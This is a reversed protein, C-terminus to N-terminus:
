NDFVFGRLSGVDHFGLSDVRGTSIRCESMWDRPQDDLRSFLVPANSKAGVMRLELLVEICEFGCNIGSFGISNAASQNILLPVLVIGIGFILAEFIGSSPHIAFMHTSVRFRHCGIDPEGMNLVGSAAIHHPLSSNFPQGDSFYLFRCM